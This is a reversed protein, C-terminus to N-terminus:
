PFCMIDFRAPGPCAIMLKDPVTVKFGAGADKYYAPGKRAWAWNKSTACSMDDRNFDKVSVAKAASSSETGANEWVEAM